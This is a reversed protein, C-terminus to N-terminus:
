DKVFAGTLSTEVTTQCPASFLGIHHTLIFFDLLLHQPSIPPTGGDIQLETWPYNNHNWVKLPWHFFTRFQYSTNIKFDIGACPRLDHRPYSTTIQM